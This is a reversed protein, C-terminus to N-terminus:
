VRPCPNLVSLRTASTNFRARRCGPRPARRRLDAGAPFLRLCPLCRAESLLSEAVGAAAGNELVGSATNIDPFALGWLVDARCNTANLEGNNSMDIPLDNNNGGHGFTYEDTGTENAILWYGNGWYYRLNAYLSTIGSEVGAKTKFYEPTYGERDTEELV